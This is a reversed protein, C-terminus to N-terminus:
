VVHTNGNPMLNFLFRRQIMRLMSDGITGFIVTVIYPGVDSENFDRLQLRINYKCDLTCNGADVVTFRPHLNNNCPGEFNVLNSCIYVVGLSGREIRLLRIGQNACQGGDVFTVRVDM